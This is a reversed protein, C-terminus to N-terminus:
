YWTLNKSIRQLPVELSPDYWVANFHIGTTDIGINVHADHEAIPSDKVRGEIWLAPIPFSPDVPPIVNIEAQLYDNTEDGNLYGGIVFTPVIHGSEDQKSGIDMTFEGTSDEYRAAHITGSIFAEGAQLFDTNISPKTINSTIVAQRKMLMVVVRDGDEVYVSSTCPTATEAGDLIVDMHNDAIHVTGYLFNEKKEKKDDNTIKVFEKVLNESLVAM